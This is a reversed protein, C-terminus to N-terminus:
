VWLPWGRFVSEEIDAWWICCGVSAEISARCGKWGDMDFPRRRLPTEPAYPPAPDALRTKRCAGLLRASPSPVIM